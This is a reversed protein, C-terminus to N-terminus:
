TLLKQIANMKGNLYSSSRRGMSKKKFKNVLTRLIAEQQQPPIENMKVQTPFTSGNPVETTGFKSKLRSNEKAAVNEAVIAKIMQRFYDEMLSLKVFPTINRMKENIVSVDDSPLVKKLEMVILVANKDWAENLQLLMSRRYHNFKLWRDQILCVCKLLKNLKISLIRSLKTESFYEFVLNRAERHVRKACSRVLIQLSCKVDQQERKIRARNIKSFYQHQIIVVSREISRM